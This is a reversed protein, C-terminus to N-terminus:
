ILIGIQFAFPVAMPWVGDYRSNFLIREYSPHDLAGSSRKGKKSGNVYGLGVVSSLSFNLQKTANWHVGVRHNLLIKHAKYEGSESSPVWAISGFSYKYETYAYMLEPSYYPYISWTGNRKKVDFRIIVSLDGETVRGKGSGADYCGRCFDEYENSVYNAAAGLWWGAPMQHLYSVGNAFRWKPRDFTTEFFIQTRVADVQFLNQHTRQCQSSSPFLGLSFLLLLTCNFNM